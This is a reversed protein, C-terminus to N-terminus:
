EEYTIPVDCAACYREPPVDFDEGRRADLCALIEDAVWPMDEVIMTGLCQHHINVEGKPYDSNPVVMPTLNRKGVGRKGLLFYIAEEDFEIEQECYDCLLKFDSPAAWPPDQHQQQEPAQFPQFPNGDFM